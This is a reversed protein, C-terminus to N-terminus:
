HGSVRQVLLIKEVSNGESSKARGNYIHGIPRVNNDAYQVFLKLVANEFSGRVRLTNKTKFDQEALWLVKNGSKQAWEELVSILSEGKRANWVETKLADQVVKPSKNYQNDLLKQELERSFDHKLPSAWIRRKQEPSMQQKSTPQPLLLPRVKNSIVVPSPFARLSPPVLPPHPRRLATGPRNVKVNKEKKELKQPQPMPTTSNLAALSLPLPTLLTDIDHSMLEADAHAKNSFPALFLITLLLFCFVGGRYRGSIQKIKM